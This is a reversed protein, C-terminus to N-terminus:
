VWLKIKFCMYTKLSSFQHLISGKLNKRYNPMKTSHYLVGCLASWKPEYDMLLLHLAKRRLAGVRTVAGILLVAKQYMSDNVSFHVM